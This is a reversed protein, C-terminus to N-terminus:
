DGAAYTPMTKTLIVTQAKSKGKERLYWIEHGRKKNPPESVIKYTSMRPGANSGHQCVVVEDNMVHDIVGIHANHDPGKHGNPIVEWTDLTIRDKKDIKGDGNEDKDSKKSKNRAWLVASDYNINHWSHAVGAIQKYKNHWHIPNELFCGIASYYANTFGNCDLGILQDDNIWKQLRNPKVLDAKLALEALLSIEEIQGHGFFCASIRDWSKSLWDIADTDKKVEENNILKQKITQARKRRNASHGSIYKTIAIKKVSGDPTRVPVSHCIKVFESAWLEPGFSKFNATRISKIAKHNRYREM